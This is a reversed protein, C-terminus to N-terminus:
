LNKDNKQKNGFIGFIIMLVILVAAGGDCYGVILFPYQPNYKIYVAEFISVYILCSIAGIVGVLSQLLGRVNPPYMKELYAQINIIVIQYFVHYLPCAFYYIFCNPDEVFYMM